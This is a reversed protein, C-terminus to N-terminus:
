KGSYIGIEWAGFAILFAWLKGGSRYIGSVTIKGVIQEEVYCGQRDM